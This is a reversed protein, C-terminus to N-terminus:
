LRRLAMSVKGYDNERWVELHCHVCYIRKPKNEIIEAMIMGCRPCIWTINDWEDLPVVRATITGFDRIGMTRQYRKSPNFNKGYKGPIGKNEIVESDLPELEAYGNMSLSYGRKKMEVVALTVDQWSLGVIKKSM